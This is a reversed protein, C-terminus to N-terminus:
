GDVSGHRLGLLVDKEALLNSDAIDDDVHVFKIHKCVVIHDIKDLHLELFKKFLM